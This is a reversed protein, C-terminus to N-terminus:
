GTAVGREWVVYKVCGVVEEADSEGDDLGLVGAIVSLEGMDGRSSWNLSVWTLQFYRWGKLFPAPM